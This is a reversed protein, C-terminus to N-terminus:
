LNKEETPVSQLDPITREMLGGSLPSWVASAKRFLAMALVPVGDDEEGAELSWIELVLVVLLAAALAVDGAGCGVVESVVEEPVCMAWTSSPRAAMTAKMPTDSM